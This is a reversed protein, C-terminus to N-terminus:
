ALSSTRTRNASEIIQMLCRGFEEIIMREQVVPPMKMREAEEAQALLCASTAEAVDATILAFPLREGSTTSAPPRTPVCSIQSTLKTKAATQQQVRVEAADALHMLTKREPSEEFNKCGICKCYNSCMIKAEYCECYNKLCGSRKCNCGKNHRRSGEIDKAKGIKPHFAQPNRDLCSKIAKSREEEHELNNACSTCNCNQCFEGNAFCDCYLKLCQSKTCNCPKRPRAGTAELTPGNQSPVNRSVTYQTVAPDVSAIPVYDRFQRAPPSTSAQSVQPKNLQHQIQQTIYAPVLAFSQLGQVNTSATSLITTGPPLQNVNQVAAAPAPPAPQIPVLTTMTNGRVSGATSTAPLLIHHVGQQSSISVPLVAPKPALPTNHQHYPLTIKVQNGSSVPAVTLPVMNTNAQTVHMNEKAAPKASHASVESSSSSAPSVLRVYQFRQGPVQIQQVSGTNNVAVAQVNHALQSARVGQVLHPARIPQLSQSALTQGRLTFSSLSTPAPGQRIIVKSTVAPKLPNNGAPALSSLAQSLVTINTNLTEKNPSGSVPTMTIKTPSTSMKHYPVSIKVPSLTSQSTRVMTNGLTAPQVSVACNLQQDGNKLNSDSSLSTLTFAQSTGVPIAQAQGSVPNKTIIVKTIVNNGSPILPRKLGPRDIITKDGFLTAATSMNADTLPKQKLIFQSKSFSTRNNVLDSGSNVAKLPRQIIYQGNQSNVTLFNVSSPASFARGTNAASAESLLPSSTVINSGSNLELSPNVMVTESASVIEM